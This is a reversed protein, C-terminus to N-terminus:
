EVVTRGDPYQVGSAPGIGAGAAHYCRRQETQFQRSLVQRAPSRYAGIGHQRQEHRQGQPQGAVEARMPALLLAPSERETPAGRAPLRIGDPVAMLLFCLTLAALTIAAGTGFTDSRFFFRLEGEGAPVVVGMLALDVHVIPLGKGDMTARWGPFYPVSLRLLSPSGAHYRIRYSDEDYSLVTATTAADQRIASHPALAVSQLHPDMSELVRICEARNGADVIAKPFYVRPLVSSNAVVATSDASM